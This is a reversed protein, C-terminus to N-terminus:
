DGSQRPLAPLPLAERGFQKNVPRAMYGMGSSRFADAGPTRCAGIGNRVCIEM